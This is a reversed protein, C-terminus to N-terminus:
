GQAASSRATRGTIHQNGFVFSASARPLVLTDAMLGSGSDCGIGPPDKANWQITSEHQGGMRRATLNKSPRFFDQALPFRSSGAWSYLPPPSLEFVIGWVLGRIAGFDVDVDGISISASYPRDNISIVRATLGAANFSMRDVICRRKAHYEPTFPGLNPNASKDQYLLFEASARESVTLCEIVHASPVQFGMQYIAHHM